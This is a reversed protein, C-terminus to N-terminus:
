YKIISEIPYSSLGRRGELFSLEVLFLIGAIEAKCMKVLEVSAKATGGTALLDDVIVVKAGSFFSDKHIELSNSGYELDYNIKYTDYPLKGPKRVPVFGIDLKYALASGFIFGRSEIGCLFDPKWSICKEALIDISDKLLDSDQLVPTIDKFNIGKKPFDPINRISSKINEISM